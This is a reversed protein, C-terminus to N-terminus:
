RAAAKESETEFTIQKALAYSTWMNAHPAVRGVHAVVWQRLADTPTEGVPIHQWGGTADPVVRDPTSSIVWSLDEIEALPKVVVRDLWNAETAPLREWAPIGLVIRGEGERVRATLKGLLRERRDNEHEDTDDGDDEDDLESVLAHLVDSATLAIDPEPQYVSATVADSAVADALIATFLDDRGDVTPQTSSGGGLLVVSARSRLADTSAKLSESHNILVAKANERHIVAMVESRAYKQGFNHESSRFEINPDFRYMGSFGSSIEGDILAIQRQLKDRIWQEIAARDRRTLQHAYRMDVTIHVGNESHEFDVHSVCQHKLWHAATDPDDFDAAADDELARETNLDLEDAMLLLGALLGVRVHMGRVHTAAGEKDVVPRYYHTGHANAVIAILSLVQPDKMGLGFEGTEIAQRTRAPHTQRITSASEGQTRKQMGLDHVWAAAWLVFKELINLRKEDAIPALDALRLAYGAVRQSHSPGHDTFTWLTHRKWWVETARPLEELVNILDAHTTERLQVALLARLEDESM